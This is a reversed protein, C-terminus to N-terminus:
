INLDTKRGIHVSIISLVSSILYNPWKSTFLPIQCLYTKKEYKHFCVLKTM